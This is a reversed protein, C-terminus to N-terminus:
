STCRHALDCDHVVQGEIAHHLRRARGVLILAAAELVAAPRHGVVILDHAAHHALPHGAPAAAPAASM